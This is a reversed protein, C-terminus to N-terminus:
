SGRPNEGRWLDPRQFPGQWIGRRAKRAESEESGYPTDDFRGGSVAHGSRVLLSGLDRSDSDECIVIARGFRDRARVTCSWATGALIEKLKEHASRGCPWANGAASTCTQRFEPADIGQLRYEESESKFSDGDLVTIAKGDIRLVEDRLFFGQWLMVGGILVLMLILSLKKPIDKRAM